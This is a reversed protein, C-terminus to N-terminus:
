PQPINLKYRNVMQQSTCSILMKSFFVCVKGRQWRGGGCIARLVGARDFGAASPNVLGLASSFCPSKCPDNFPVLGRLANIREYGVEKTSEVGRDQGFGKHEMDTANIDVFWLGLDTVIYHSLFGHLM